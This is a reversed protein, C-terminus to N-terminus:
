KLFTGPEDKLKKLVVPDIIRQLQSTIASRTVPQSYNGSLNLSPMYKKANLVDVMRYRPEDAELHLKDMRYSEESAKQSALFNEHVKNFAEEGPQELEPYDENFLLEPNWPYMIGSPLKVVPYVLSPTIFLYVELKLSACWSAFACSLETSYGQRLNFIEDTSRISLMNDSFHYGYKMNYKQMLYAFAEIIEITHEDDVTGTAYLQKLYGDSLVEQKMREIMPSDEDIYGALMDAFSLLLNVKEGEDVLWANYGNLENIISEKLRESESSDYTLTVITSSNRISRCIPSYIYTDVLKDNVYIDWLLNVRRTKDWSALARYDWYMPMYYYLFGGEEVDEETITVSFTYPNSIESDKAVITLKMAQEPTQLILFMQDTASMDVFPSSSYMKRLGEVQLIYSPWLADMGFFYNLNRINQVPSQYNISDPTETPTDPQVVEVTYYNEDKCSVLLIFLCFVVMSMTKLCRTTM